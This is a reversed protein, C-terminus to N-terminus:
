TSTRKYSFTFKTKQLCSQPGLTFKTEEQPVRTRQIVDSWFRHDDLNRWRAVGASRESVEEGVPDSARINGILTNLVRVCLTARKTPGNIFAISLRSCSACLNFRQYVSFCQSSRCEIMAAPHKQSTQFVKHIM